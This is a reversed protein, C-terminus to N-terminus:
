NMGFYEPYFGPDEVFYNQQLYSFYFFIVSDQFTGFGTRGSRSLAYGLFYFYRIIRNPISPLAM